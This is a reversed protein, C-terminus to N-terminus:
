GAAHSCPQMLLMMCGPYGLANGGLPPGLAPPMWPESRTIVYYIIAFGFHIYIHQIYIYVTYVVCIYTNGAFRDLYTYIHARDGSGWVGGGEGGLPIGGGSRVEGVGGFGLIQM